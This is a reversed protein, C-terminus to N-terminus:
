PCPCQFDLTKRVGAEILTDAVGPMSLVEMVSKKYTETSQTKSEFKSDGPPKM